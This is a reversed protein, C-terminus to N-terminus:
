SRIALGGGFGGGTIGDDDASSSETISSHERSCISMAALWRGAYCPRWSGSWSMTGIPRTSIRTEFPVAAHDATDDIRVIVVIDGGIVQQLARAVV